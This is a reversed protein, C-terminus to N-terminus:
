NGHRANNQQINNRLQPLKTIATPLYMLKKHLRININKHILKNKASTLFSATELQSDKYLARYEMKGMDLMQRYYRTRVFSAMYEWMVTPDEPFMFDGDEKLERDYEVAIIGELVNTIIMGDTVSYYLGSDSVVKCYYNPDVNMVKEMPLFVTADNYVSLVSNFISNSSTEITDTVTTMTIDTAGTYLSTTTTLTETVETDSGPYASQVAILGKVTQIRSPSIEDPLKVQHNVVTLFEIDKVYHLNRIHIGRIAQLAWSKIEDDDNIQTRIASIGYNFVNDLSLM